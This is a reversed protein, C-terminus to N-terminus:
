CSIIYVAIYMGIQTMRHDLKGFSYLSSITLVTFPDWDRTDLNTTTPQVGGSIVQGPTKPRHQEHTWNSETIHRSTKGVASSSSGTRQLDSVGAPNVSKIFNPVLTMVRLLSQVHLPSLESSLQIRYRYVYLM